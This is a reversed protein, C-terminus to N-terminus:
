VTLKEDEHNCPTDVTLQIMPNIKNAVKMVIDMTVITDYIQQDTDRKAEDTIVKVEHLQNGKELSDLM